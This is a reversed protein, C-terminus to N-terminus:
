ALEAEVISVLPGINIIRSLRFGGRTLVARWEAETREHGTTM